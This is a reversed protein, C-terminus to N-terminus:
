EATVDQKEIIEQTEEGEPIEVGAPMVPIEAAPMDGHAEPQPETDPAIMADDQTEAAAHDNVDERGLCSYEVNRIFAHWEDPTFQAKGDEIQSGVVSDFCIQKRREARADESYRRQPLADRLAENISVSVLDMEKYHAQGYCCVACDDLDEFPVVTNLFDPDDQEGLLVMTYPTLNISYNLHGDQDLYAADIGSNCRDGGSLTEIIQLSHEDLRRMKHLTSFQGTGGGSSRIVVPIDAELPPHAIPNDAENLLPGAYQIMLYPKSMPSGFEDHAYQYALATNYPSTSFYELDKYETALCKEPRLDIRDSESDVSLQNIFCLPDVPRGNYILGPPFAGTVNPQQHKLPPQATPLMLPEKQPPPAAQKAQPQATRPLQQAQPAMDPPAAEQQPVSEPQPPAEPAYEAPPLDEQLITNDQPM